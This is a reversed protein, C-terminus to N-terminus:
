NVEKCCSRCCTSPVAPLLCFKTGHIKMKGVPWEIKQPASSLVTHTHSICTHSFVRVCVCVCVHVHVVLHSRKSFCISRISKFLGEAQESSLVTRPLLCRQEHDMGPLVERLNGVTVHPVPQVRQQETETHPLSTM